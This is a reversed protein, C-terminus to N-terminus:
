FPFIFNKENKKEIKKKKKKKKFFFFQNIRERKTKKQINQICSFNTKFQWDNCGWLSKKLILKEYKKLM